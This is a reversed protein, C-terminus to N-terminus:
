QPGARRRLQALKVALELALLDENALDIGSLAEIRELRQRLTNPHVMLNRATRTVSRRDTLYQALTAVLQGGRREDYDAIAGIADRYPDAVAPEAVAHVLYRYAGLESYALAGGDHHLAGAIIAADAAERLAVGAAAVGRHVDSRGCTTATSASLAGLAQDLQRLEHESGGSALPLLTRLREGGVDCLASPALRRLTLEAREALEPWSSQLTAPRDVQVVVHARALNCRAQSARSEADQLRGLELAQFLEHALNKETLHEILQARKLALALQDAVARMLEESDELTARNTGGVAVLVGLHEGGAAVPVALVHGVAPDLGLAMHVRLMAARDRRGRQQLLELLVDSASVSSGVMAGEPAPDVTVLDLERRDLKYLRVEDAGILTRVGRTVTRYLTERDAVAAVQQSLASLATLSAVRRRADEYLQANEIAGALLPAVHALLNLTGGDFERPAITHLVIVGIPAGSRSPIPVAVMSQFREEQLQPIYNTRPDDLANERIFAPNNHRLVWGALGDDAGFELQGVLHAYLPSAARLRLQHGRRLYMFCAHCRTATTLLRVLGDLVRDLHPSSAILRIAEYLTDSELRVQTLEEALASGNDM